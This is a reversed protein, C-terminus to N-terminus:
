SPRSATSRTWRFKSAIQIHVRRPRNAPVPLQNYWSFIGWQFPLTPEPEPEPGQIQSQSQPLPQSQPQPQPQRQCRSQRQSRKGLILELEVQSRPLEKTAVFTLLIAESLVKSNAPTSPEINAQEIQGVVSRTEKKTQKAKEATSELDKTREELAKREEEHELRM